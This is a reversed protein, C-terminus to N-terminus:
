TGSIKDIESALALVKGPSNCGELVHKRQVGVKATIQVEPFDLCVVDKEPWQFFREEQLRTALKQVDAIPITRERIGKVRVYAHGVYRVQGNGLVTVEYDPCEGLCGVRMLKVSFDALTNDSQARFSVPILLFFVLAAYFILQKMTLVKRRNGGLNRSQQRYCGM